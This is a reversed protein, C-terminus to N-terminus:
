LTEYPCPQGQVRSRGAEAEGTSHYRAQIQTRSLSALPHCDSPMHHDSPMHWVFYLTYLRCSTVGKEEMGPSPDKSHAQTARGRICRSGPVPLTNRQMTCHTIVLVGVGFRLRASRGCKVNILAWLLCPQFQIQLEWACAMM